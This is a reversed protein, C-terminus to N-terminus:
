AVSCGGRTISRRVSSISGPRALARRYGLAASGMAHRGGWRDRRRFVVPLRVSCCMSTGRMMWHGVAAIRVGGEHPDVCHQQAHRDFVTIPLSSAAFLMTERCSSDAFLSGDAFTACRAFLRLCACTRQPLGVMSSEATGEAAYLGPVQVDGPFAPEDGPWRQNYLVDGMTPRDTKCQQRLERLRVPDPLREELAMVAAKSPESKGCAVLLVALSSM